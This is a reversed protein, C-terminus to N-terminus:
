GRLAKLEALVSDLRESAASSTQKLEEYARKVGGLEVLLAEKEADHSQARNELSAKLETLEGVQAKLLDREESLTSNETKLRNNEDKFRALDSAAAKLAEEREADRQADMGAGHAALQEKEALLRDRESLLRRREAEM